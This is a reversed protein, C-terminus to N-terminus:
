FVSAPLGLNGIVTLQTSDHELLLRGRFSTLVDASSVSKLGAAKWAQSLASLWWFVKQPQHCITVLM